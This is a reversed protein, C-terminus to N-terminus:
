LLISKMGRTTIFGGLAFRAFLAFTGL